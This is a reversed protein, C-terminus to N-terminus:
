AAVARREAAIARDICQDDWPGSCERGPKEAFGIRVLFDFREQTPTFASRFRTVPVHVDVEPGRAIHERVRDNNEQPFIECLTWGQYPSLGDVPYAETFRSGTPAPQPAHLM